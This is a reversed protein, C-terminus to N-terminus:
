IEKLFGVEVVDDPDIHLNALKTRTNERIWLFAELAARRILNGLTRGERQQVRMTQKGLLYVTQAEQADRLTLLENRESPPLLDDHAAPNGRTIFGTLEVVIRLTLNPTLVDDMYGHRLTVRYCSSIKSTVRNIVFRQEIPVTPMSLSRMHFFVIVQPRTHFKRIFQSFVKPIHDDGIGGLKDFFIGLGPVTSLNAGGFEPRLRLRISSGSESGSRSFSNNRSLLLLESPEIMDRTEAEWQQEKGWRWLIFITSLIFSLVIAFWGGDPVKNLAASLYVGDLLIFVLFVFLVIPSPVRWIILAVLSVLCTTIFTVIIVCAGYAHGLSTTNNYVATVVVTGIMLLWNALPMYIQDHFQRSTHVTKIHPFYSLRMLQSILQFSSTILAQSAVMAALIAIVISFYFTGDPVTYYFPNTFATGTEDHSIYAAQGAYTFLLCPFALCLWSIQIARQGFAGLDAFLTEVGTFALLLGGLSKWGETGTRNLYLFAYHPSFAKLVTHDYEVLNYINITFNFLLWIIVIPAFSTGIKATGLPQILFLFVLIGCSIGVIAGRGLDPRVVQLGQVAGLVSQAPTLVSDAMVMSVGLIGVIKLIAKATRSRELFGRVMRGAPPLKAEGIERDLRIMIREPQSPDNRVISAYRALLSYVAFSGGQGDDDASLVIFCYKITVILTLSWIIISLAGVLDDWSPQKSFTSSFVYLPSTGIDGYVVGTSQWAAWLLLLGSHVQKNARNLDEHEIRQAKEQDHLDRADPDSPVISPAEDEDVIGVRQEITDHIDDNTEGM